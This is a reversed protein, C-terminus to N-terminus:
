IHILSLAPYHAVIAEVGVGQELLDLAESLIRELEENM